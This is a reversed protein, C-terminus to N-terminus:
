HLIILSLLDQKGFPIYIILCVTLGHMVTLFNMVLHYCARQNKWLKTHKVILTLSVRVRINSHIITFSCSSDVAPCALSKLTLILIDRWEFLVFVNIFTKLPLIYAHCTIRFSSCSSIWSSKENPIIM